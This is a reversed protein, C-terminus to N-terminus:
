GQVKAISLGKELASATYMEAPVFIASAVRFRELFEIEPFTGLSALLRGGCRVLDMGRIQNSRPM